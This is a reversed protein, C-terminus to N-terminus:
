VARNTLTGLGDISVEMLDGPRLFRPPTFGIGVGAPTGTAIVDGPELAVATSIASILRPIDFILDKVVADQRLEGNVRTQLRLAGVDDIDDATVLYPGMPCYTHASKGIFFQVHRKQLDRVTLDNVITYGYVHDFAEAERIHRGGAGIVVGLEGEYDSSETPDESVTVPDGPDALSSLAKTFIVPEDPIVQKQSADFGSGAFEAAHEYYNKGVCMVNNRPRIPAAIAVDTLPIRPATGILARARALGADGLAVFEVMATPLEPDAALPVIEDGDVVGIATAGGHPRFTVLKM